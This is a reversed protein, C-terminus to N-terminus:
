SSQKLRGAFTFTGEAVSIEQIETYERGAILATALLKGIPNFLLEPLPTSGVQGEVFDLELEGGAAKPALVVRLPLRWRLFAAEGRVIMRGDGKFYVQPEVLRARLNGLSLGPQDGDAGIGELLDRVGQLEQTGELAELGPLQTISDLGPVDVPLGPAAQAIIGGVNLNSTVEEQTVTFHVRRSGVASQGVTMTKQLFTAAAQPSVAPPPGDDPLEPAGCASMALAAITLAGAALPFRPVRIPFFRM